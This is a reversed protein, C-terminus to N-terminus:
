GWHEGGEDDNIEQDDRRGAGFERRLLKGLFKLCEWGIPFEHVRKNGKGGDMLDGIGLGDAVGEFDERPGHGLTRDSVLDHVGVKYSIASLVDQFHNILAFPLTPRYLDFQPVSVAVHVSNHYIM